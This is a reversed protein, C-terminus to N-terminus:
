RGSEYGAMDNLILDRTYRSIQHRTHTEDVVVDFRGHCCRQVARQISTEYLKGKSNNYCCSDYRNFIQMQRRGSGSSALVFMELYNATKLLARYYQPRPSQKAEEGSRLYIPYPGAVLYSGEIRSDVASAVVTVWAGASFGVMDIRRYNFNKKIYNLGIVVPNLYFRLPREILDLLRWPHLEYWGIGPVYTRDMRAMGYGVLNIALVAYGAGILEELFIKQDMFTGRHGHGNQYIVLKGNGKRPRLHFISINYFNSVGVSIRDIALMNKTNAFDGFPLADRRLEPTTKIPFNSQIVEPFESLPMGSEGWITSILASRLRSIDGASQVRILTAPDTKLFKPHIKEYLYVSKANWVKWVIRTPEWYYFFSAVAAIVSLIALAKISVSLGRRVQM